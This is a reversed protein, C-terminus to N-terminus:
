LATRSSTTSCTFSRDITVSSVSKMFTRRATGSCYRPFGQGNTRASKCYGIRDRFGLVVFARYSFRVCSDRVDPCSDAAALLFITARGKSAGAENRTKTTEPKRSRIAKMRWCSARCGPGDREFQHGIVSSNGHGDPIVGGARHPDGRIGQCGEAGRSSAENM